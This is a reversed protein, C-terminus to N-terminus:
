FNKKSFNSIDIKLMYLMFFCIQLLENNMLNSLPNNYRRFPIYYRRINELYQCSKNFMGFNM